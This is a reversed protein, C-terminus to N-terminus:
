GLSSWVAFCFYKKRVRVVRANNSLFNLLSHLFPSPPERARAPPNHKRRKAGESYPVVPALEKNEM